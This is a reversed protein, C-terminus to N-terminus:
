VPKQWTTNDTETNWYYPVGADTLTKVWPEPLVELGPVEGMEPLDKGGNDKMNEFDPLTGWPIRGEWFCDDPVGELLNIYQYEVYAALRRLQDNYADEDKNLVYTWVIGMIEETMKQPDDKFEQFAHDYHTCHLFTLQQADKLHKNVTLEHVGEARIRAQTDNWLIDFLEEQVLLALHSDVRDALLRKHLFWVHMTLLAHRPRFEYPIRAQQFWRPDNAQHQATRFLREGLLIRKKQGELSYRDWLQGFIGKNDGIGAEELNTTPAPPPSAPPSSSSLCRVTSQQAGLLRRHTLLCSASREVNSGAAGVAASASGAVSSSTRACLRGSRRLADWSRRGLAAAADHIPPM